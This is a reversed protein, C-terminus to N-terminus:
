DDLDDARLGQNRGLHQLERTPDRVIVTARRFNRKLANQGFDDAFFLGAPAFPQEDPGQRKGAFQWFEWLALAFDPVEDFLAAFQRELFQEFQGRGGGGGNAAEFVFTQQGNGGLDGFAVRVRTFM